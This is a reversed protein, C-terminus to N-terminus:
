LLGEDYVDQNEPNRYPTHGDGSAQQVEDPEDLYADANLWSTPHKTFRPNEGKREAAYREAAALLQEPTAGRKIAADYADRAKRPDKKKPYAAYFKKFQEDRAARLASLEKGQERSGEMGKGDHAKVSGETLGEHTEKSSTNESTAFPLVIAGPYPEGSEDAEQTSETMEPVLRPAFSGEPAASHDEHSGDHLAGHTNLSGEMLERGKPTPEGEEPSPLKELSPRNIRQHEGWSTVSIFKRSGVTYRLILEADSLQWLDVDVDKATRDDLPWVAAKVLRADDVCRGQDDVHTWLGIFTLRAEYTLDAVTLSTFFEPKITRIRAM